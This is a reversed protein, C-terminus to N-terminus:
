RASRPSRSRARRAGYRGRAPAAPRSHETSRPWRPRSTRRKTWASSPQPSRWARCKPMSARPPARGSPIQVRSAPHCRLWPQPWRRRNRLLTVIVAKRDIEIRGEAVERPDHRAPDGVYPTVAQRPEGKRDSRLFPIPRQARPQPMEEAAASHAHGVFAKEGQHGRAARPGAVVAGAPPAAAEPSTSSPVILSAMSGDIGDTRVAARLGGLSEGLDSRLPRPRRRRPFPAAPSGASPSAGSASASSGAGRGAGLLEAGALTPSACGSWCGAAGARPAAPRDHPRRALARGRRSQRRRRSSRAPRPSRRKGPTFAANIVPVQSPHIALM